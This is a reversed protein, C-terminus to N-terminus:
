KLGNPTAFTFFFHQGGTTGQEMVIEYNDWVLAGGAVWYPSTMGASGVWIIKIHDLGSSGDARMGNWENTIWAGLCYIPNNNGNANCADWAANWKMVLHDNAYTPDNWIMGNLNGDVGDALGSFLRAKYNYGCQNFGYTITHTCNIVDASASTVGLLAPSIGLALTVAMALRIVLKM